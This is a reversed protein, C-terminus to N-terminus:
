GDLDSDFFKVLYYCDAETIGQAMGNDRIYNLFERPTLFGTELRDLRQFASYPEFNENMALFQRKLEIEQEFNAITLLLDALLPAACNALASVKPPM